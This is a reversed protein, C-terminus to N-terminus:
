FAHSQERDRHQMKETGNKKCDYVLQGIWINPLCRGNDDGPGSKM